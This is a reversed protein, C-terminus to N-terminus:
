REKVAHGGFQNRLAAIMKMAFSDDQRSAFRAFLSLATVPAPVDEEIAELLTWRGVGSDAVFGEIGELKPDAELARVALDLLWSRVVSGHRWVEAIAHLDLEPYLKSGALIEFGEGYAQLLGYEIGNHVMKVFHGSGVPGVHVWGDPPALTDLAPTLMEISDPEGGVMLCYGNELGWIGGSTGSDVFRVGRAALENGRRISDRFNSNGGDVILDGKSLLGGLERVTDETPAGSPVMAWLVRPGRLKQVLEALSSAESVEPNRDYGIVEHGGRRLREAMNAGMRGLGIMAIQM